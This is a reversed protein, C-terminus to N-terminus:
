PTVDIQWNSSRLNTLIADNLATPSPSANGLLNVVVNSRFTNNYSTNLDLLIQDVASTGLAMNSLDLTFVQNLGSLSGNSYNAIPNNSLNLTQCNTLSTIDPWVTLLNNQLSFTLCNPLDFGVTSTFQNNQLALNTCAPLDIEPIVGSLLNDDFKLVTLKTCVNPSPLSGTLECGYIEAQLLETCDIFLTSDITGGLAMNFMQLVKLSICDRFTGDQIPLSFQDSKLVFRELTPRCGGDSPGFTNVTLSHSGDTNLWRTDPSSWIKLSTNSSLDPFTGQIASEDLYVQELSTCGNFITEGDGLVSPDGLGGDGTFALGSIDYYVLNSNGSLDIGLLDCTMLNGGLFVVELSTNGTINFTSTFENNAADLYTLSAGVAVNELQNNAVELRRLGAPLDLLTGELERGIGGTLNLNQLGTLTSLLGTVLGGFCGSLNLSQITSPIRAVVQPTFNRLTADTSNALNLANEMQLVTLVPTYTTFDPFDLINNSSINLDDLTSFVTQPFELVGIDELNLVTFNDAPYYTSVTRQASFPQNIEVDVISIVDSSNEINYLVETEDPNTVVVTPQLGGPLVTYTYSLLANRFFGEFIFPIGKMAFFQYDSGNINIDITHTPVEAEFRTPTIDGLLTLNDFDLSAGGSLLVQNGYQVQDAAAGFNSWASRRSTSFDIISATGDDWNLKYFKYTPSIYRGKLDVAVNLPANSSNFIYDTLEEYGTTEKQASAMSKELNTDLGSVTILDEQTLPDSSGSGPEGNLLYRIKQLDFYNLNINKLVEVRDRADSLNFSIRLGTTAM